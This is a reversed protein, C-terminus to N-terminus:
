KFTLEVSFGKRRAEEFALLLKALAGPSENVLESVLATVKTEPVQSLYSEVSQKASDASRTLKQAEDLVASPESTKSPRGRGRKVPPTPEEVIADGAEPPLVAGTEAQIKSLKDKMSQAAALPQERPTETVPDNPTTTKKIRDAISIAMNREKAEESTSGGYMKCLSVYDCFHGTGGCAAPYHPFLNCLWATDDLSIKEPKIAEFDVKRVAMYRAWPLIQDEMRAEVEDRPIVVETVMPPGSKKPYYIWKLRVEHREPYKELWLWSYIIAQPDDKIWRGTGEETTLGYQKPDSSSKHDGLGDEFDFDVRGFFIVGDEYEGQYSQEIGCTGPEPLLGANIVKLTVKGMPTRPPLTGDKLYAEAHAHLEEGDERAKLLHPAIRIPFKALSSFAWKRPCGSCDKVRSPSIRYTQDTM